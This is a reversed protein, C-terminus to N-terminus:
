ILVFTVAVQRPLDAITALGDYFAIVPKVKYDLPIAEVASEM